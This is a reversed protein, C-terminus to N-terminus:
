RAGECPQPGAYMARNAAPLSSGNPSQCDTIRRIEGFVTASWSRVRLPRFRANSERNRSQGSVGRIAVM